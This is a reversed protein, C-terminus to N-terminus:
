SVSFAALTWCFSQVSIYVCAKCGPEVERIKQGVNRIYKEFIGNTNCDERKQDNQNEEEGRECGEEM